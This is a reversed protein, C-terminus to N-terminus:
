VLFLLLFFDRLFLFFSDRDFRSFRASDPSITSFSLSFSFDGSPLGCGRAFLSVEIRGSSIGLSPRIFKYHDLWIKTIQHKFCDWVFKGAQHVITPFRTPSSFSARIVKITKIWFTFIAWEYNWGVTFFRFFIYWSNCSVFDLSTSKKPKIAFSAASWGM